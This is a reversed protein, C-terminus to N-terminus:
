CKSTVLVLWRGGIGLRSADDGVMRGGEAFGDNKTTDAFNGRWWPPVRDSFLEATSETFDPVVNNADMM